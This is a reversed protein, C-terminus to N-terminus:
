RLGKQSPAVIHAPTYLRPGTLHDLMVGNPVCADIFIAHVGLDRAPSDRGACTIHWLVFSIGHRASSATQPPTAMASVDTEILNFRMIGAACEGEGQGFSTQHIAGLDRGRPVGQCNRRLSSDLLQFEETANRNADM